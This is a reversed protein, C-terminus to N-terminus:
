RMRGYLWDLNDRAIYDVFKIDAGKYLLRRIVEIRANNTTWSLVSCFWCACDANLDAGFDVLRKMLNIKGDNSAYYLVTSGKVWPLGQDDNGVSGQIKILYRL